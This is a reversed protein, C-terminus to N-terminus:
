VYRNLIQRVSGAYGGGFLNVHVLLPYLNYLDLRDQWGPSLPSIEEYANYFAQTQRDFLTMFALEMERHGYYVAPDIIAALGNKNTVINGGWLDGHLLAPPETPFINILQQYLKDFSHKIDSGFARKSIAMELMPQIREQVFFHIWDSHKNNQQPLAGIYNDYDLGFADSSHQHLMALKKGFDQWYNASRSAPEIYELLLWAYSDTTGRGIFEPVQLTKTKGLLQLGRSEVEFNHAEKLYNYKLFFTGKQTEVRNANHICGGGLSYTTSIQLGSEKFISETISNPLPM